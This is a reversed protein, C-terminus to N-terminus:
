NMGHKKNKRRQRHFFFSKNVNVVITACCASISDAETESDRAARQSVDSFIPTFVPRLSWARSLTDYKMGRHATRCARGPGSTRAPGHAASFPLVGQSSYGDRQPRAPGATEVFTFKYERVPSFIFFLSFPLPASRPTAVVIRPPLERPFVRPLLSALLRGPHLSPARVFRVISVCNEISCARTRAPLPAQM